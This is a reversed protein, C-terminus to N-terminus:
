RGHHRARLADRIMQSIARNDGKAFCGNVGAAELTATREPTVISSVCYFPALPCSERALELAALTDFGPVNSDALILDPELHSLADRFQSPLCVQVVRAPIAHARLLARLLVVDNEDDEVYLIFSSSM